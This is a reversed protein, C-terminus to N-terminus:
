FGWKFANKKLIVVLPKFHINAVMKTEYLLITEQFLRPATYLHAFVPIAHYKNSQVICTAPFASHHESNRKCLSVDKGQDQPSDCSNHSICMEKVFSFLVLKKLM